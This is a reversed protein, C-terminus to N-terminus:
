KNDTVEKKNPRKRLCDKDERSLACVKPNYAQKCNDHKYLPCEPYRKSM